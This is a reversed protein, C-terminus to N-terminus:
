ISIDNWNASTRALLAIIEPRSIHALAEDVPYLEGLIAKRTM